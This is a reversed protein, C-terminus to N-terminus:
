AHKEGLVSKRCLCKLQKKKDGVIVNNQAHTYTHQQYMSCLKVIPTGYESKRFSKLGACNQVKANEHQYYSPPYMAVKVRNVSGISFMAM